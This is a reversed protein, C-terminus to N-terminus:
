KHVKDNEYISNVIKGFLSTAPNSAKKENLVAVALAYKPNDKPFYGIFWYNNNSSTTNGLQATGSKGAVKVNSGKLGVGTGSEVVENLYSQLLQYTSAKLKYRSSQMLHPEFIKFLQGQKFSINRAIRPELAVGDRAITAMINAAQLPSLLTDRQGIAAQAIEGRDETQSKIFSRGKEEEMLLAFSSKNHQEHWSVADIGGLIQAVEEIQAATLRESLEAFVVNCSNAFAQKLTQRGHGGHKWCSLGYKGYEGNCYFIESDNTVGYELAAALTIIKYISGPRQSTITYNKMMDENLKRPFLAPKSVMAKIDNTYIDLLVVAIHTAAEKNVLEEIKTQLGMNITTNVILPYDEYDGIMNIGLGDILQGKGDEYWAIKQQEVGHIYRDLSRELGIVGLNSRYTWNNLHNIKDGYLESILEPNEATFGIGHIYSVNPTDELLEVIQIGIINATELAKAEENNLKIAEGHEDNLWFPENISTFQKEIAEANVSLIESLVRTYVLTEGNIKINPLVLVRKIAQKHILKGEDDKFVARGDQLLLSRQRQDVAEYRWNRNYSPKGQVTKTFSNTFWQLSALKVLYITCLCTFLLGIIVVRSRINM